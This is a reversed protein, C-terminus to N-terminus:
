RKRARAARDELLKGWGLDHLAAEASADGRLARRILDERHRADHGPLYRRRVIVGCGCGCLAPSSVTGSPSPSAGTSRRISKAGGDAVARPVRPAALPRLVLGDIRAASSDTVPTVIYGDELDGVVRCRALGHTWYYFGVYACMHADLEDEVANLEAPRSASKVAHAIAAWRHGSTVLLPPEGTALSELLRVVETLAARRKAFDHNGRKYKLTVRLDFLSVMAPHPYVEIMRRISVGPEFVPDTSLHLRKALRDARVGESFAPLGLNASHAGAQSSGFTASIRRDCERSTGAANQVILPADVAVLASGVLHPALWSCIEDDTTRTASDVVRGDEVAALGTRNKTTWALDVGLFKMPSNVITEGFTNPADSDNSGRNTTPPSVAGIM